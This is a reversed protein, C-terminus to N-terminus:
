NQENMLKDYIKTWKEKDIEVPSFIPIGNRIPYAIDYGETVLQQNVEDYRLPKKTIPCALQELCKIDFNKKSESQTSLHRASLQV